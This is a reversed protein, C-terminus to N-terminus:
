PRLCGDRAEGRSSAVVCGVDISAACSNKDRDIGALECAGLIQHENCLQDIAQRAGILRQEIKSAAQRRFSCRGGWRTVKNSRSKPPKRSRVHSLGGSPEPPECRPPLAERANVQM